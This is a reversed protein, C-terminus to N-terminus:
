GEVTITAQMGPHIACFYPFSGATDFTHTFVDNTAMTKSDWVADNSTTTHTGSAVTWRVSDGVRVVTESESFRFNLIGVDVTKPQAPGTTTTASSTTTTPATTTTTSVTGATTTSESTTSTTSATTTSVTGTTTPAAEISTTTEPAATTSTEASQETGCAAFGVVLVTALFLQKPKM